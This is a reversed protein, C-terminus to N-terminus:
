NNETLEISELFTRIRYDSKDYNSMSKDYVLNGFAKNVLNIGFLLRIIPNFIKTMIVKKGHLIAITKVLESTRVYEKNQPFYLGQEENDIMLKVFECLNDIHIMSRKNDFDPFVKLRKAAAVLKPYNGKSDKGYTMPPRLIVIKFNESELNRIGEEAELKSKGYFNNPLPVTDRDITGKETSSDGYVIISSM